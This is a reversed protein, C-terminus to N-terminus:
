DRRRALALGGLVLLALGAPEGSGSACGDCGMGLPVDVEPTLTDVM